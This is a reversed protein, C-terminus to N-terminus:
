KFKTTVVWKNYMQIFVGYKFVGYKFLQLARILRQRAVMKTTDKGFKHAFKKLGM